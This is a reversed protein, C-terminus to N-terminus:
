LAQIFRAMADLVVDPHDIQPAHGCDALVLSEVPGGVNEEILDVQELTGYRDDEGQIV